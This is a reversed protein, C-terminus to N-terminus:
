NPTLKKYTSENVEIVRPQEVQGYSYDNAYMDLYNVGVGGKKMNDKPTERPTIM